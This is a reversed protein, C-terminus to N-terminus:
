LRRPRWPSRRPEAHRGSCRRRRRRAPCGIGPFGRLGPGRRRVGIMSGDPGLRGARATKPRAARAPGGRAAWATRGSGDQTAGGAGAALALSPRRLWGGPGDRAPGLWGLWAPVTRVIGDRAARAARAAGAPSRTGLRATRAPRRLREPGPQSHWTTGDSGAARPWGARPWAPGGSGPRFRGLTEMGRRKRSPGARRFADREPHRALEAEAAARTKARLTFWGVGASGRPSTRSRVWAAPLV